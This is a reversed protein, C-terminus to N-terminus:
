VHARGIEKTNVIQNAAGTGGGAPNYQFVFVPNGPVHKQLYKLAVAVRMSGLGGARRGEILTITKGQYFPAEAAVAWGQVGLALIAGGALGTMIWRRTLLM